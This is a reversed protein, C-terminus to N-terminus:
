INFLQANVGGDDQAITVNFLDTAISTSIHYVRRIGNSNHAYILWDDQSIAVISLVGTVLVDFELVALLRGVIMVLLLIM